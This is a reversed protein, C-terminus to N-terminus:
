GDHWHRRLGASPTIPCPPLHFVLGHHSTPLSSSILWLFSVFVKGWPHTLPNTKDFIFFFLFLVVSPWVFYVLSWAIIGVCTVKFSIALHIVIWMESHSSRYFFDACGWFIFLYYFPRTKLSFTQPPTPIFSPSVPGHAWPISAKAAMVTSTLSPSHFSPFCAHYSTQLGLRCTPCSLM